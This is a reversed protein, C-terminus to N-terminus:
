TGTDTALAREKKGAAATTLHNLSEGPMEGTVLWRAQVAAELIDRGAQSRVIVTNWGPRGELSGVALDAWEATMDPCVNCAHPVLHRIDDLPIELSQDPTRVILLGEPPPTVEMATVNMVDVRESLFAILARTDLAWTCFLGVSLAVPDVFGDGGMPNARLQAVATSQCPMGVVGLRRYGQTIGENLASLTPAATYKSTACQAVQAAETVLRPVPVLGDRDTLVAGDIAGTDLAFAMLASVVGGDQFAGGPANEGARAALVEDTKGLPGTDFPADWFRLALADEDVDIKPCFAYCRGRSHSCPFIMSTKGKRNKFYPCLGVCAGCGICLDKKLVNEVLESAGFVQM